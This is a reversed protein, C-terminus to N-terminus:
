RQRLKNTQKNSNKFILKNELYIHYKKNFLILSFFLLFFNVSYYSVLEQLIKLNFNRKLKLELDLVKEFFNDPLKKVSKRGLMLDRFSETRQHPMIKSLRGNEEM